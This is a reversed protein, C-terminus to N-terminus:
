QFFVSKGWSITAHRSTTLVDSMSHPQVKGTGLCVIVFQCNLVADKVESANYSNCRADNCGSAHQTVNALKKLGELPTVVFRRDTQAAYDGFIAKADNAM